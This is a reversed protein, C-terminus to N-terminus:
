QTWFGSCACWASRSSTGAEREWPSAGRPLRRWILFSAVAALPRVVPTRPRAAAALALGLWLTDRFPFVLQARADMISAYFAKVQAASSVPDGTVPYNLGGAVSGGLGAGVLTWGAPVLAPVAASRSVLAVLLIAAPAYDIRTLAIAAGVLIFPAPAAPARGICALALLMPALLVGKMGFGDLLAIAFLAFALPESIGGKLLRKALAACTAASGVLVLCDVPYLWRFLAEPDGQGALARRTGAVALAVILGPWYFATTRTEHDFSFPHGGITNWAVLGYALGDDDAYAM